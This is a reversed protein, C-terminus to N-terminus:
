NRRLELLIAEVPFERSFASITGFVYSKGSKIPGGTSFKDKKDKSEVSRPDPDTTKKAKKPLYVSVYVDKTCANKILVGVDVHFREDKHFVFCVSASLCDPFGSEKLRKEDADVQKLREASLNKAYKECSDTQGYVLRTTLLVISGLVVSAFRISM